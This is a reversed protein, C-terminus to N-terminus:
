TFFINFRLYRFIDSIWGYSRAWLYIDCVIYSFMLSGQSYSVIALYTLCVTVVTFGDVTAQTPNGAIGMEIFGVLMFITTADAFYRTLWKARKMAILYVIPFLVMLGSIILM